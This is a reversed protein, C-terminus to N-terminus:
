FFERPDVLEGKVAAAAVSLPSGAYIQATGSGMRGALNNTSSTVCVEGDGLIADGLGACGGCSPAGLHAGAQLVVNLIGEKEMQHLIERSPPVVMFRVRPHIRHGKLIKAVYRMEEARGGSCSGIYAVDVQVGKLDSIPTADLLDNPRALVPVFRSVDYRLVSSFKADPDSAAPYMEGKARKNVYDMVKEDPNIIATKAGTYVWRESCLSMREDISM